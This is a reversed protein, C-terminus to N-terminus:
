IFDQWHMHVVSIGARLALPEFDVPRLHPAFTIDNSNEPDFQFALYLPHRIVEEVIRCIEFISAPRGSVMWFLGGGDKTSNGYFVKNAIYRALDGVYIYDRLTAPTGVIHAVQRLIGHHLLVPILSRRRGQCPIGYVSTVRYIYPMVGRANLLAQEQDLKLQGYPRRPKPLDGSEVHQCGEFLGGASSVLHFEVPNGCLRQQLKEALTLVISFANMENRVDELTASFGARGASWIIVVRPMCNGSALAALVRKELVQTIALACQIQVAENQWPFAHEEETLCACSTLADYIAQGILGVGWLAIIKAHSVDASSDNYLIRM